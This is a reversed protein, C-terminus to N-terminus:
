RPGSAPWTDKLGTAETQFNRNPGGVPDLAGRPTSPPTPKPKGTQLPALASGFAPAAMALSLFSRRDM